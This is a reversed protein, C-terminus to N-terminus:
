RRRKIESTVMRYVFKDLDALLDEGNRSRRLLEQLLAKNRRANLNKGNVHESDPLISSGSLAHVNFAVQLWKKCDAVEDNQLAYALSSAFLDAMQLGHYQDSAELRLDQSLNFTFLKKQDGYEIYKKETLGVFPRFQEKLEDLPKSNDCIVDLADHREGWHVLVANLSTSTLDLPWRGVGHSQLSTLEELISEKHLLAFEFVWKSPTSKDHQINHSFLESLQLPDVGRMFKQFDVFLQEADANAKSLQAFLLNAVFKHFGVAYFGSSSNAIVPEFIYEFLKCALAYKKHCIVSYSLEAHRSWLETLADRGQASRILNRGKLEGQLRFRAKLEGIVDRAFDEHAAVSSVIFFPSGDDM